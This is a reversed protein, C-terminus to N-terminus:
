EKVALRKRMKVQTGKGSKSTIKLYDMFTEMITFGMGSREGTTCTTFLPTKAQEIDEIGCGKDSVTIEVLGKDRIVTRITIKGIKDGYGHVISNTVAESVATKIETLEEITPDLQAIFAAVAVRAFGENASRSLFTIKMENLGSM